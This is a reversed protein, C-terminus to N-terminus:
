RPLTLTTLPYADDPANTDLRAFDIPNYWGVLLRYDGPAPTDPYVITHQTLFRESRMWYHTPLLPPGDGQGVVQNNQDLVQVFVTDNTPLTGDSEWVLTLNDADLRYGVLRITRGFSVPNISISSEPPEIQTVAGFGGVDVMVSALSNGQEDTAPVLEGSPYDWWGVQIRLRSIEGADNNLPVAYNDAYIAGAQWNITQLRGAGPYSDVKGIVSGDDLTAHLYLSLDRESPSIVQWYVTVPVM